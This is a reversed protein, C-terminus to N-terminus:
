STLLAAFSKKGLVHAALTAVSTAASEVPGALTAHSTSLSGVHVARSALSTLLGAVLAALTDGAAKATAVSASLPTSCVSFSTAVSGRSPRAHSVSCHFRCGAAQTIRKAAPSQLFGLSGSLRCFAAEVHAQGMRDACTFTTRSAPLSLAVFLCVRFGAGAGPSPARSPAGAQLSERSTAGNGQQWCPLDPSAAGRL